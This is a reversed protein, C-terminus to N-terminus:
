RENRAEEEQGQEEKEKGTRARMLSDCVSVRLLVMVIGMVSTGMRVFSVTM